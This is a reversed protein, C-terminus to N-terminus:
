EKLINIEHFFYLRYDFVLVTVYKIKCLMSSRKIVIIVNNITRFIYMLKFINSLGLVHTM